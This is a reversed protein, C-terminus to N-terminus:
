DGCRALFGLDRFGAATVSGCAEGAGALENRGIGALRVGGSRKVNPAGGNGGDKRFPLLQGMASPSGMIAAHPQRMDLINKRSIALNRTGQQSNAVELREALSHAM